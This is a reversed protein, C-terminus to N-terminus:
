ACLQRPATIAPPASRRRRATAAPLRLDARGQGSWVKRQPDHLHGRRRRRRYSTKAEERSATTGDFDDPHACGPHRLAPRVEFARPAFCACALVCVCACLRPPRPLSPPTSVSLSPRVSSSLSDSPPLRPAPPLPVRASAAVRGRGRRGREERAASARASARGNGM